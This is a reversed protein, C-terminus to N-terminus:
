RAGARVVLSRWAPLAARRDARARVVVPRYPALATLWEVMQARALRAGPCVHSGFGFVLRAIREPAPAMPDPDDRHAAVAHRAILLLRDGARVPCGAVAGDDAAVRPLLPTPAIVRLLEGALAEPATVAHDWLADDAAWAAARPLAAVTTTIAAVTLMAALGAHPGGGPAVMATLRQAATGAARRTHRFKPGPLHARAAAAAAALAADALERGDVAPKRENMAGTLLAAATAGALDAALPVLDVEGGATLPSLREAQMSMWMPRLMAVAETGLLDATARRTRRHDAGQQDFLSGDGALGAVAGGTTGAATRDLRLGTLAAEYATRDHVLLTGGLRVVSRRRTAALLAFLM